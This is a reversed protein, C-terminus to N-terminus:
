MRALLNGRYEIPIACIANIERDALRRYILECDM